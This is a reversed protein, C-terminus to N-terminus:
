GSLQNNLEKVFVKYSLIFICFFYVFENLWVRCLDWKLIFVFVYSAWVYVLFSLLEIFFAQLTKGIGTVGSLWPISVAFCLLALAVIKMVPIGGEILHYDNTFLLMLWESKFFSLFSFPLIFLVSLLVIKWVVKQLSHYEKAGYLHGSITVTSHSFALIPSMILIYVARVLNSIALETSGMKEIFVFFLFWSFVSIFHQLILPLSIKMIEQMVMMRLWSIFKLQKKHYAYFAMILLMSVWEAIVSALASGVYGFPRITNNYGYILLPNLGLNLVSMVITAVSIINTQGVGLYYARYAYFLFYPVFGIVRINLFAMTADRIVDDKILVRMLFFRFTFYLVVLLLGTILQIFVGNFLYLHTEERKGEGYKQAVLVQLGSSIGFGVMMLSGYFLGAIASAGLAIEGLRGLFLTDTIYIISQGFGSIILPFVLNLIGQYSYKM